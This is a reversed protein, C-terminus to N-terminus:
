SVAIGITAISIKVGDVALLATACAELTAGTTLVDDILLIHKGAVAARDVVAFAAKMNEAREQRTKNTQSETNRTRALATSIVPKRTITAIGEALVQSQNYGRRQTRSLHLPVPVIADIGSIWTTAALGAGLRRGLYRGTDQRGRYKLGHLLHQLLGEDTFYALSTAHQFPIRGAFRLATDNGPIAHYNTEPLMAECATCLVDEDAVMPRSCGECLHPYFLHTIGKKLEAFTLLPM